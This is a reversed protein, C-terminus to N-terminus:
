NMETLNPDTNNVRRSNLLQLCTLHKKSRNHKWRTRVLIVSGCVNCTIIHKNIRKISDGTNDRTLSIRQKRSEQQYILVRRSTAKSQTGGTSYTQGSGELISCINMLLAKHGKSPIIELAIKMMNRYVLLYKLEASDLNDDM